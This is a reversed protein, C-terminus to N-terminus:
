IFQQTVPLPLHQHKGVLPCCSLLFAEQGLQSCQSAPAVVNRTYKLCARLKLMDFSSFTKFGFTLVIEFNLGGFTRGEKWM